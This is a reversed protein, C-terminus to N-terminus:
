LFTRRIFDRLDRCSSSMEVYQQPLDKLVKLQHFLGFFLLRAARTMRGQFPKELAGLSCGVSVAPPCLSVRLMGGVRAESPGRVQVPILDAKDEGVLSLVTDPFKGFHATEALLWASDPQEGDGGGSASAACTGNSMTKGDSGRAHPRPDESRDMHATKQKELFKQLAAYGVAVWNRLCWVSAELREAWDLIDHRLM